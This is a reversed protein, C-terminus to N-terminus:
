DMDNFIPEFVPAIIESGFPSIHDDDQYLPVENIVVRCRGEVCLIKWPEILHIGYMHALSQLIENTRGNRDLYEDITPAIIQNADRGTQLAIFNASPVDYGIEPIPTVLYVEHGTDRLRQVLRELGATFLKDISADDPLEGRSDKLSLAGGFEDKYHAGEVWVTWRNVIIVKTIEPHADLYDLVTHNYGPCSVVGVVPSSVVDLLTPCGLLYTMLGGAGSNKAAVDIAKGTTPAHSDGWVLFSAPQSANGIRCPTIVNPDGAYDMNCKELDWRKMDAALSAQTVDRAPFGKNFYLIAGVVLMISMTGGALMYLQGPQLFNPSRFPTEIYRWSIAALVLILFLILVNELVTVPRIAYYRWFIILPWHWLYLSYSIKGIFTLLPLSLFRSAASHGHLGGVLIMAAGGVPVLAALGPFPTNETYIFVPLLILIIGLTAVGGGYKQIADSRLRSSAILAGALLEWARLHALYFAAGSDHQMEQWGLVFSALATLMLVVPLFKRAYRMTLVMFLPFLIYFQEEVALSWTHLLPKLQSPTDFYGAELWFNINSAFLVTAIVSRGFDMLRKPDYILSCIIMTFVLVAFLAPLIRRIRRNYFRVLSFENGDIERLLIGTILYGSIVFFVDVGVFGGPFLRFGAHNLIVSLVAIARLGDIDNRYNTKM